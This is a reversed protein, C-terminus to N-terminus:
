LAPEWHGPSTFVIRGGPLMVRYHERGSWKKSGIRTAITGAPIEMWGEFAGRDDCVMVHGEYNRLETQVSRILVHQCQDGSL